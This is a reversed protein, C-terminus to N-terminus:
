MFYVVTKIGTEAGLEMKHDMQDELMPYYM